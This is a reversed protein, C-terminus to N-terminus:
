PVPPIPNLHQNFREPEGGNCSKINPGQCSSSCRESTVSSLTNALLLLSKIKENSTFVLKVQYDMYGTQLNLHFSKHLWILEADTTYRYFLCFVQRLKPAHIFIKVINLIVSETSNLAVENLSYPPPAVQGKGLSPPM